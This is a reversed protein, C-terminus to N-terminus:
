LETVVRVGSRSGKFAKFENGNHTIVEHSLGGPIVIIDGAEVTVPYNKFHFTICGVVAARIEEFDHCHLSRKFWPTCTQLDYAQFGFKELEARMGVETPEAEYAWKYLQVGNPFVYQYKSDPSTM